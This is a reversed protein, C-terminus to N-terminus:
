SAHEACLAARDLKGNATRPLADRWVIAHPQMFGPLERRLWSKLAPEDAARGRVV